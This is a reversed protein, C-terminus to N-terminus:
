TTRAAPFAHDLIAQARGTYGISTARQMAAVSLRQAYVPDALVRSIGAALAEGSDPAVLCAERDSLLRKLAPIATAVMPTGAALYEGLKVPSTTTASVHHASPPLLLVDADWLMAPLEAHPKPGLLRVNKLKRSSITRAHRDIDAPLGGILTFRAEPMLRAADLITPIGKYDFLHGSYVVEPPSKPMRWPKSSPRGFLALDVGTQLMLIKHPPVGLSELYVNMDPAITVLARLAETETATRALRLFRRRRSIKHLEAVGPIGGRALNVPAAFARSYTFAPALRQGQRDVQRAFMRDRILRLDPGVIPTPVIQLDPSLSMRARLDDVTFRADYPSSCVLFTEHGIRSFGDAMKFTNVANAAISDTRAPIAVLIRM